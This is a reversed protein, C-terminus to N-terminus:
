TANTKCEIHTMLKKMDKVRERQFHDFDTDKVVGDAHYVLSWYDKGILHFDYDHMKCLTEGAKGMDKTELCAFMEELKHCHYATSRKAREVPDLCLESFMTKPVTYWAEWAGLPISSTPSKTKDAM